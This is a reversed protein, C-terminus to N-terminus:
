KPHMRTEGGLFFFFSVSIGSIRRAATLRKENVPIKYADKLIGVIYNSVFCYNQLFRESSSYKEKATDWDTECFNNAAEQIQWIPWLSLFFLITM